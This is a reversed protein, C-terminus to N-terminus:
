DESAWKPLWEEWEEWPNAEEGQRPDLIHTIVHAAGNMAPIDPVAVRRGNAYLKTVIHHPKHPGPFPLSVNYKIVNVELSHDKLATPLTYNASEVIESDFIDYDSMSSFIEGLVTEDAEQNLLKHASSSEIQKDTANHIWDSLLAIDPVVHFQLIKKLAREGFPSFLFLQLKKPLREFAHNTPVFATVTRAGEFEDSPRDFRYLIDTAETLGSRQIASSFFSFASPLNYTGRFVTPPPFLPHNLVHIVGNKAQLNPLIVRSYLNLTVKPPVLSSEIRVRQADKDLSFPISLTTPLTSVEALTSIDLNEPLTHYELIATVIGKLFKYRREKDPDDDELAQLEDVHVLARDLSLTALDGATFADLDLGAASHHHHDLASDPVAFFTIDASSDNLKNLVHEHAFNIAKTYRSFKPDDSIIHWITKAEDGHGPPSPPHIDYEPHINAIWGALQKIRNSGFELTQQTPLFIDLPQPLANAVLLVAPLCVLPKFM